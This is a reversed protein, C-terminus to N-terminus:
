KSREGLMADALSYALEAMQLQLGAWRISDDSYNAMVGHLAQGAFWDRLSMGDQAHEQRYSDGFEYESYPRSFANPNHPKTVPRPQHGEADTITLEPTTM